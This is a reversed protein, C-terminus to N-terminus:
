FHSQGTHSLRAPRLQWTLRAPKHAPVSFVRLHPWFCVQLSPQAPNDTLGFKSFLILSCSSCKCCRVLWLHSNPMLVLLFEALLAGQFFPLFIRCSLLLCPVASAHPPLAPPNSQWSSFSWLVLPVQWLLGGKLSHSRQGLPKVASWVQMHWEAM